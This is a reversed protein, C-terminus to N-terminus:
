LLCTKKEVYYGPLDENHAPLKLAKPRLTIGIFPETKEGFLGIEQTKAWPGQQQAAGIPRTPGSRVGPGFDKEGFDETRWDSLRKTGKIMAPLPTSKSRTPVKRTPPPRTVNRKRTDHESYNKLDKFDNTKPSEYKNTVAKISTRERTAM